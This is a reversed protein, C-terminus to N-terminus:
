KQLLKMVILNNDRIWEVFDTLENLNENLNCIEDKPCLFDCKEQVFKRHHRWLDVFDSTNMVFYTKISDESFKM